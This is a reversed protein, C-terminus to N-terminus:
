KGVLRLWGVNDETAYEQRYEIKEPYDWAANFTPYAALFDCGGNIWRIDQTDQKLGEFLTSVTTGFRCQPNNFRVIKEDQVEIDSRCDNSGAIDIELRYHSIRLAAWRNWAKDIARLKDAIPDHFIRTDQGWNTLKALLAGLFLLVIGAFIYREFRTRFSAKPM